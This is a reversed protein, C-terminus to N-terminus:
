GKRLTRAVYAQISKVAAPMTWIKAVAGDVKKGDSKIRNTVPLHMQAKTQRFAAPPIGALMQAAAIARDMLGAPEVVEHLLGYTAALDPVYTNGTYIVEAFYRPGTAARMVEFALAPFPLGVLLETVGIKAPGRAMMRYDACCALVCGGAIAHGNIAAVIPKPFHFIADYMKNLAPLFQRLYKVGGDSAKILNVGASFMTGQGTIVVADCNSAKALKQFQGTVARCFEIDLANAKGHAMTLVFVKGRQTVGIM